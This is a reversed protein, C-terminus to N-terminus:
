DELVPIKLPPFVKLGFGDVRGQKSRRLKSRITELSRNSQTPHLVANAIPRAILDSLELGAHMAAKPAFLIELEGQCMSNLQKEIRRFSLELASDEVKGRQEFVVHTRKGHQANDDLFRAVRELGYQMATAYPEWHSPLREKRLVTAVVTFAAREVIDSLDAMFETHASERNLFQFPAHKKRINREHLVVNDHGFWKFKLKTLASTVHEAYAAKEFICFALAFAPFDKNTPGHDGSEDVYVIFDSFPCADSM